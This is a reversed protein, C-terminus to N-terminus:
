LVFRQSSVFPPPEMGLKAQAYLKASFEVNAAPHNRMALLDRFFRQLTGDARMTRGGNVGMLEYIARTCRDHALAAEYLAQVRREYPIARGSELLSQLEAWTAGVRTRATDIAILARALPRQVASDQAVPPGGYASVRTRNQEVFADLAGVAAGIAPAAITYGFVLRWPLRFYPRDNVAFGPDRGHYVDVISHTRHEPVFADMIVIDKSGTGALGTVQWSKHDISFDKRPVLFTRFEAGSGDDPVVAALLAWGCHDVGSSFHWRGSLHFGCNVRRASGTPALSSSARADADEGWVERQAENAFLAIQWPHIGVVSAVWGTSACASAILVMGEYFTALDLELGCWQRPQVARFVVAETLAQVIDDPVRGLRETEAARARIQPLLAAIRNLFKESGATRAPQPAPRPEAQLTDPM